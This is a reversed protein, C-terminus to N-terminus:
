LDTPSTEVIENNSDVIIEIESCSSMNLEIKNGPINPDTSEVLLLVYGDSFSRWNTTTGPMVALDSSILTVNNLVKFHFPLTGNNILRAQPNTNVCTSNLAETDTLSSQEVIENDLSEVTCSTFSLTIIAIAILKLLHKM